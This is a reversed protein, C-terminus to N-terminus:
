SRRTTAGFGFGDSLGVRLDVGHRAVNPAYDLDCEPDSEVQNITPPLIGRCLALATLSLETSGAAGLMHGTMSKTSSSRCRTPASRASCRSSSARRASDDVPTSTGHANIYDIASPEMGAEDLAMRM